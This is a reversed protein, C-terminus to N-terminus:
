MFQIKKKRFNNKRCHSIGKVNIKKSLVFYSLFLSSIMYFEIPMNSLVVRIFHVYNQFNFM